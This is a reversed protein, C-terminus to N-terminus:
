AKFVFEERVFYGQRGGVGGEYYLTLQSVGFYITGYSWLMVLWWWTNIQKQGRYTKILSNQNKKTTWCNNHGEIQGDM